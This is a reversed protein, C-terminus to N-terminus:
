ADCIVGLGKKVAESHTLVAGPWASPVEVKLVAEDAAKVAGTFSIEVGSTKTGRTFVIWAWLQSPRSWGFVFSQTNETNRQYSRKAHRKWSMSGSVIHDSLERM